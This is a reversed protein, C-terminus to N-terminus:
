RSRIWPLKALFQSCKTSEGTASCWDLENSHSSGIMWRTWAFCRQPKRGDPHIIARLCRSGITPAEHAAYSIMTALQIQSWQVHCPWLLPQMSGHSSLELPQTCLSTLTDLRITAGHNAPRPMLGYSGASRRRALRVVCSASSARRGSLGVWRSRTPLERASVQESAM